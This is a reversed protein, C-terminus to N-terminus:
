RTEGASQSAHLLLAAAQDGYARQTRQRLLRERLAKARRRAEAPEALIERLAKVYVVPDEWCVVPWSEEDSLVEGVGGVLSGVIPIERMAVELLVSPVGDWASTYLWADAQSPDVDSIHGYVGRLRVNEPLQVVPSRKSTQEGWFHFEVDPMRRAVDLAIDVRKQRDWRGAWYVVPPQSSDPAKRVSSTLEPQVPAHFVHIRDRDSDSLQYLDTLKDRMYDSDTIFGDIFDFGAYFWKLSWDQWDGRPQQENGLFCLFIQESAALAKGYSSLTGYFLHSNVNVISDAVFSRLLVVLSQQKHDPPLGRTAAAFDIERVGAPFRGQPSAGSKDTYIVVIDEQAITSSLAHAIHGEIHRGGDWRPRSCVLVVRARKYDAMEQCARIAAVQGVVSKGGLPLIRTRTTEAWVAGILPEIEAAKAFMEGLTGTRLRETMDARTAVVEDVIQGPELGLVEALKEIGHAPDAIEGASRGRKLWHIYPSREPGKKLAPYRDLYVKMDFHCNPSNVAKAGNDLFIRIPDVDPREHLAQAQLLFNMHDFNDRLLDYDPDVGLPAQNRKVQTVLNDMVPGVNTIEEVVEPVVRVRPPVALPVSQGAQRSVARRLRRVVRAILPSRFTASM